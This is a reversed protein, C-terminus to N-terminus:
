CKGKRKGLGKASRRKGGEVRSLGDATLEPDFPEDCASNRFGETRM